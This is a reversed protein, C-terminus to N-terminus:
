IHILSLTVIVAKEQVAYQLRRQVSEFARMRVTIPYKEGYPIQVHVHM